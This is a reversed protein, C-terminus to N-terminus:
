SRSVRMAARLLPHGFKGIEQMTLLALRERDNLGGLSKRPTTQSTTQPLMYVQTVADDLGVQYEIAPLSEVKRKTEFRFAQGEPNGLLKARQRGLEAGFIASWEEVASAASSEGRIVKELLKRHEYSYKHVRDISDWIGMGLDLLRRMAEDESVVAGVFYGEFGTGLAGVPTQERRVTQWALYAKDMIHSRAVIEQVSAMDGAWKAFELYGLFPPVNQVRQGSREYSSSLEPSQFSM